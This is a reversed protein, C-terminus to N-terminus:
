ATVQRQAQWARLDALSWCNVVQDPGLGARRAVAVGHSRLNLQDPAHADSNIAIPVGKEAAIHCWHASLDLRRPNANLELATGTQAARDILWAVDLETSPRRLLLRSTPHGICDVHPNALVRDMRAQLQDASQRQAVHISAVVWDLEALVEDPLGLSGDALIEVEIGRLVTFSGDLVTNLEAVEIAQAALEDAGLGGVMAYPASHDTIAMHTDGRDRATIAMDRISARGDSWTSHLHLDARLHEERLSGTLASRAADRALDLELESAAYVVRLTSGNPALAAGDNFGWGAAAFASEALAPDCGRCGLALDRVIEEGAPLDGLQVISASPAAREIIAAAADLVAAASDRLLEDVAGDAPQQLADMVADAHELITACTKASIKPLEALSGDAAAAVVDDLSEASLERWIRKATSAGIGPMRTLALLGNPVRGRAEELQDFTGTAILEAVKAVTATGVGDLGGLTGAQSLAVISHPLERFTTAARSYALARYPKEDILQLREGLEAFVAAIRQNTWEDPNQLSSDVIPLMRWAAESLM